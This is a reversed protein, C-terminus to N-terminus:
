SAIEAKGANVASVSFDPLFAQNNAMKLLARFQTRRTM